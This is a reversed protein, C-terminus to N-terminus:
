FICWSYSTCRPSKNCLPSNACFKLIQWRQVAKKYRALQFLQLISAPESQFSMLQRYWEYIMLITSDHWFAWCTHMHTIHKSQIHAIKKMWLIIFNLSLSNRQLSVRLFSFIRIYGSIRIYQYYGLIMSINIWYLIFNYEFHQVISM